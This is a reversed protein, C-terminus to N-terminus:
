GQSLSSLKTGSHQWQQGIFIFYQQMKLFTPQKALLCSISLEFFCLQVPYVVSTLHLYSCYQSKLKQWRFTHFKSIEFRNSFLQFKATMKQLYKFRFQFDVFNKSIEHFGLTKGSFNRSIDNTKHFRMLQQLIM